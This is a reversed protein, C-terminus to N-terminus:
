WPCNTCRMIYDQNKEYEPSEWEEFYLYRMISDKDNYCILGFRRPYEDSKIIKCIFNGMSFERILGSLDTEFDRSSLEISKMELYDEGMAFELDLAFTVATSGLTATGDFIYFDMEFKRNDSNEVVPFFKEANIGSHYINEGFQDRNLFKKELFIDLDHFEQINRKDSQMLCIGIIHVVLSLILFGLLVFLLIKFIRKKGTMKIV